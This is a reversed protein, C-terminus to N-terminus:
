LTLALFVLTGIFFTFHIVGILVLVTFLILIFKHKYYNYSLIFKKLVPLAMISVSHNLFYVIRVFLTGNIETFLVQMTKPLPLYSYSLFIVGLLTILSILFIFILPTKKNHVEKMINDILIPEVFKSVLSGFAYSFIVLITHIWLLSVPLFM